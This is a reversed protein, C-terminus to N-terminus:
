AIRDVVDLVVSIGERDIQVPGIVLILDDGQLKGHHLVMHVLDVLPVLSLGNIGKRGGPECAHVDILEHDAPIVRIRAGPLRVAKHFVTIEDEPVGYGVAAGIRHCDDIRVVREAKGNVALRIRLAAAVDLDDFRVLISSTRVGIYETDKKAENDEDAENRDRDDQEDAEDPPKGATRFEAPPVCSGFRCLFLLDDTGLDLVVLGARAAAGSPLLALIVAREAAVAHDLIFLDYLFALDFFRFFVRLLAGVAVAIRRIGIDVDVDDIHRDDM